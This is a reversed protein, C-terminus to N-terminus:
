GASVAFDLERPRKTGHCVGPPTETALAAKGPCDLRPWEMGQDFSPVGPQCLGSRAGPPGTVLRVEGTARHIPSTPGIQAQAVPV